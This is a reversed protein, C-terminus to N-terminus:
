LPTSESFPHEKQNKHSWSEDYNVRGPHAKIAGRVLDSPAVDASNTPEATGEVSHVDRSHFSGEPARDILKEQRGVLRERKLRPPKPLNSNLDAM